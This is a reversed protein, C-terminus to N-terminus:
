GLGGEVVSRGGEAQAAAFFQVIRGIMPQRGRDNSWDISLNGSAEVLLASPHSRAAGLWDKLM